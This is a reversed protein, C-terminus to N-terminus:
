ERFIIMLHIWLLPNRLFCYWHERKWPRIAAIEEATPKEKVDDLTLAELQERLENERGAEEAMRERLDDISIVEDAYAHQWKERRKKVKDIEAYLYKIESKNDGNDESSAVELATQSDQYARIKELFRKEIKDMRIKPLNCLGKSKEICEYYIYVRHPLHSPSKTVKM